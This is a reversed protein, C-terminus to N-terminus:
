KNNKDIKNKKMCCDIKSFRADHKHLGRGICTEGAGDNVFYHDCIIKTLKNM